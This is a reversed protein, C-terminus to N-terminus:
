ERADLMKPEVRQGAKFLSRSGIMVRDNEKLGALVEIKSPTEMGLSVTRECIKNESDLAYVTCDKARSVAEVPVALAKDKHELRLLVSAYM